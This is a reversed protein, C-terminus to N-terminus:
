SSTSRSSSRRTSSTSAGRVSLRARARSARRVEHYYEVGKIGLFAAGLVMTVVLFLMLLKRDGTQAAHVALAM